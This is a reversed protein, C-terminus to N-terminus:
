WEWEKDAGRKGKGSDAIARLVRMTFSVSFSALSAGGPMQALGV